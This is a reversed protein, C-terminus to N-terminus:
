MSKPPYCFYPFQPTQARSTKSFEGRRLSALQHPLVPPMQSADYNTSDREAVVDRIEEILNVTCNALYRVIFAMLDRGIEEIIGLVFHFLDFLAERVDPLWLFYLLDSFLDAPELHVLYAEAESLPGSAEFLDVYINHLHILGKLYQLVLTTFGQINRIYITM